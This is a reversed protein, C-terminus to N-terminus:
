APQIGLMETSFFWDEGDEREMGESSAANGEEMGGNRGVM